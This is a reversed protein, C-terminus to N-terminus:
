STYCIWYINWSVECFMSASLFQEKKLGVGQKAPLNPKALFAEGHFSESYWGLYWQRTQVPSDSSSKEMELCKFNLGQVKKKKCNDGLM